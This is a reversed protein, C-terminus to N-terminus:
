VSATPQAGATAEPKGPVVAKVKSALEAFAAADRAAM